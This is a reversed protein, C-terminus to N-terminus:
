LYVMLDDAYIDLLHEIKSKTRFPRINGREMMLALIESVLIFLYRSIPDGQRCGRKIDFPASINGNVVTVAQFNSGKKM